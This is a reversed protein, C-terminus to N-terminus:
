VCTPRESNRDSDELWRTLLGLLERWGQRHTERLTTGEDAQFAEWGGHRVTLRTGEPIGVLHFAVWTEGPWGEDAWTLTLCRAPVFEVVRGSTIVLTGDERQWPEVFAGGVWPELRVGEGWWCRLQEERTLAEWVCAPSAHIEVSEHIVGAVRGHGITIVLEWRATESPRLSMATGSTVAVDLRDPYGTCPELALHYVPNSEPWGGANLWIGLYPVVDLPFSLLVYYDNSPDYLAAWGERLATVYLKDAWGAELPPTVSLDTHQGRKDCTIPWPHKSGPEGLRGGYSSDVYVQGVVPLLIRTGPGVAFLPHASWTLHLPYPSENALCYSLFLTSGMQLAIRRDLVYPLQIGRVRMGLSEEEFWWEWAQTWADGHDPLLIGRWPAEPYPCPAITPLCEDFGSFDHDEFRDGLRRWKYPRCPNHWLVDRGSSLDIINVIKGGLEPLVTVRLADSQIALATFGERKEVSLDM